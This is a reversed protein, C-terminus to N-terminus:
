RFNRFLSEHFRNQDGARGAEDPIEQAGTQKLVTEPDDPQIRHGIIVIHRQLFPTVLHKQLVLKELRDVRPDLVRIHQHAQKLGFGRIDDNM